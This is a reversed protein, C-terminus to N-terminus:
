QPTSARRPPKRKTDAITSAPPAAEAVGGTGVPPADPNESCFGGTFGQTGICQAKSDFSCTLSGSSTGRFCWPHYSATLAASASTAIAEPTGAPPAAPNESCFGGTFGQTGICQAKSDFSCTLAGSSEGRFCWRHYSSTRTEDPSAEVVEPTEAPPAIPNESCLGGTRGETRMCQAKSDFYCSVAGSSEGRFCWPHYSAAEASRPVSALALVFVCGALLSFRM